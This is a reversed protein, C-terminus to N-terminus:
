SFTISQMAITSKIILISARKMQFLSQISISFGAKTQSVLPSKYSM